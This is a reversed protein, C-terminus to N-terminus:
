KKLFVTHTPFPIEIHKKQCLEYFRKLFYAQAEYRKLFSPVTLIVKFILGYDGLERLSIIPEPKPSIMKKDVMEKFIKEALKIVDDVKTGYAVSVSFLHRIPKSPKSYNVIVSNALEKNPFVVVNRTLTIIRTTRWGIELVQGEIDNIKVYDGVRFPRDAIIHLGSFFNSLTDQLALAVALGGIGMGALLPGVNVGANTLLFLVLLSYLTIKVLNRALPLIEDDVKTKTKPAVETSYYAMGLDVMDILLKGLGGMLLLMIWSEITRGFFYMQPFFMSVTIFAATFICLVVKYKRFTNILDEKFIGDKLIKRM